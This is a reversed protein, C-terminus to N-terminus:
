ITCNASRIQQFLTDLKENCKTFKNLYKKPHFKNMIDRLHELLELEHKLETKLKLNSNLRRHLNKMHQNYNRVMNKYRGILRNYKNHHKRKQHRYNNRKKTTSNVDINIRQHLKSYAREIDKLQKSLCNRLDNIEKAIGHYEKPYKHFLRAEKQM